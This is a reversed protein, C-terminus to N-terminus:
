LRGGQAFAVLGRRRWGDILDLLEGSPQVGVLDAIDHVSREGTCLDLIMSTREGVRYVRGELQPLKHFLFLGKADLLRPTRDGRDALGAV